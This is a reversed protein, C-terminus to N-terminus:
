PLRLEYVEDDEAYTITVALPRDTLEDPLAFVHTTPSMDATCVENPSPGFEIHVEGANVVDPESPVPPCSGSGMTIVAFEDGDIWGASPQGTLPDPVPGDWGDPIGQTTRDAESGDGSPGGGECGTAAVVVLTLSAILGATTVSPSRTM